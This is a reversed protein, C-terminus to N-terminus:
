PRLGAATFELTRVEGERGTVPVLKENYFLEVAAANGTKLVLTKEARISKESEKPLTDTMVPKGDAVLSIWVNEKAKIRLVFGDAAAPPTEAPIPAPASARPTTKGVPRSADAARVRWVKPLGHSGIYRWGSYLLVAIVVLVAILGLPLRMPEREEVEDILLNREPPEQRTAKGAAAAESVAALYDSVAQEEDLGLYRAYSRVFGKNFIGGPLKNFDEDELARLSRTGIKTAEAIEELTIGRLERERQLRDGFSGV